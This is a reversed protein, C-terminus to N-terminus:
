LRDELIKAHQACELLAKDGKALQFLKESLCMPVEYEKLDLSMLDEYNMVLVM